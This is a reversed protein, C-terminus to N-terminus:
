KCGKKLSADGSIPRFEVAFHGENKTSKDTTKLLLWYSL